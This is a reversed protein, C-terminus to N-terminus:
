SHRRISHKNTPHWFFCLCCGCFLCPCWPGPPIPIDNMDFSCLPYFSMFIGFLSCIDCSLFIFYDPVSYIIIYSTFWLFIMCISPEPSRSRVIAQLVGFGGTVV